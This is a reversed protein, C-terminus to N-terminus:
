LSDPLSSVKNASSRNSALSYLTFFKTLIHLLLFGRASHSLIYVPAAMKSLSKATGLDPIWPEIIMGTSYHSM